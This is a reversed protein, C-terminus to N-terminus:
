QNKPSPQQSLVRFYDELQQRYQVPIQQFRGSRLGLQTEEVKKLLSPDLLPTLPKTVIAKAVEGKRKKSSERKQLSKTSELMRTLIRKQKDLVEQSLNQKRLKSEVAKMEESIGKLDGLLQSMKEAMEALRETAERILQQEYAMRDLMQQDGPLHGRQRMQQSLQQAMQNLKEQNQVLQQLQDLMNEMNGAGMQMNMQDMADLLALTVQNLTALGQKQIPTALSPQRDELARASRSLADSAAELAWVIEPKVQMQQQGLEWLRNALTDIGKAFGIENAALQQLQHIEGKLYQGRGTELISKTKQAVTQHKQSLYLTSQVASRMEALAEEANAGRMFELANDLGQHLEGLTQEAQQASQNVKKGQRLQSATEKLDRPLQHDLAFQRLRQLEDGVRQLNQQGASARESMDKGLQDLESLLNTTGDLIRDEQQAWRNTSKTEQSSLQDTLQNQRDKLDGAQKVASELRQQLIMQRYLAKLRDLKQMFQEQSFNAAMLEKEQKTLDQQQLAKALQNLLEKHEESLAQEMLEQLEQYKQVTEADFLQQKKMQETLEQMQHLEQKVGQEIQQQNEVIQRLEKEDQQTLDQSKRLRDILEDVAAEAEAQQEFIAELDQVGAQQESEVEDLIEALSPFRITFTQSSGVNAGSVADNDIAEVRYVVVDEPFLRLLDLDWDYNVIANTKFTQFTEVPLQQELQGADRAEIQYIIRLLQLGFDDQASIQLQVRMSDDLVIDEAPALIRVTPPLDAISEIQYTIPNENKLDATDQFDIHYQQHERVSFRGTVSFDLSLLLNVQELSDFILSVQDVNDSVKGEFEVVTGILARLNGQNQELKQSTLGTYAPYRLTLQFWQLSPAPPVTVHYTSTKIEAVQLYYEMSETIHQITAQYQNGVKTMPVTQWVGEVRRHRLDVGSAAYSITASFDVAQGPQIETDGPKLSTIEIPPSTLPTNPAPEFARTFDTLSTPFLILVGILCALLLCAYLFQRWVTAIEQKFIQGPTIKELSAHAQDIVQDILVTSYGLQKSSKSSFLQTASLIRDEFEPYARSIWLAVSSLSMKSILPGFYLFGQQGILACFILVTTMRLWRPLPILQDVSLILCLALLVSASWKLVAAFIAIGREQRRLKKLTSEVAQYKLNIDILNTM